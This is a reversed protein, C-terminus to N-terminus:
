NKTKKKMHEQIREQVEDSTIPGGKLNQFLSNKQEHEQLQKKVENPTIPKGSEIKFESAKQLLEQRSTNQLVEKVENPISDGKNKKLLEGILATDVDSRKDAKKLQKGNVNNGNDIGNIGDVM